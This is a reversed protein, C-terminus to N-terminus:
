SSVILSSRASYKVSNSTMSSKDPIHYIRVDGQEPPLYRYGTQPAPERRLVIGKEMDAMYVQRTIEAGNFYIRYRSFCDMDAHIIM